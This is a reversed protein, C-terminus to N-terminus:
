KVLEPNEYINGIVEWYFRGTDHFLELEKWGVLLWQGRKFKCEFSIERSERDYADVVIDGEYIERGNKDKLGTYQMLVAEEVWPKGDWKEFDKNVSCVGSGVGPGYFKLGGMSWSLEAVQHMYKDKLNWARFKIERM